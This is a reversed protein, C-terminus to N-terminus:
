GAGAVDAVLRDTDAGECQGPPDPVTFPIQGSRGLDETPHAVRRWRHSADGVDPQGLSAEVLATREVRQVGQGPGHDIRVREAVRPRRQVQPEVADEGESLQPPDGIREPHRGLEVGVQHPLARDPCRNAAGAALAPAHTRRHDPRPSSASSRFRAATSSVPPLM